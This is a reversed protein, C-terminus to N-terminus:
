IIVGVNEDQFVMIKDCKLCTLTGSDQYEALTRTATTKCKPCILRAAVNHVTLIKTKKKTM